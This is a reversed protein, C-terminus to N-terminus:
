LWDGSFFQLAFSAAGMLERLQPLLLSVGLAQMSQTHIQDALIELSVMGVVREPTGGPVSLPAAVSAIVDPRGISPATHDIAAWQSPANCFAAQFTPPCTVIAGQASEPTIVYDLEAETYKAANASAIYMGPFQRFTATARPKYFLRVRAMCGCTAAQTVLLESAQILMVSLADLIRRQSVVLKPLWLEEFTHPNFYDSHGYKSHSHQFLSAHQAVFGDVGARGAGRVVRSALQPWIDNKAIYNAVYKVRNAELVRIWDYDTRVISGAFLITEFNFAREEEILRAVLYTGLSHAVISVPAHPYDRVVQAVEDRLWKVRGDRAWPNLFQFLNFYGYDLLVPIMGYQAIRPAIEKQWAGRTRIGHLTIVVPRIDQNM